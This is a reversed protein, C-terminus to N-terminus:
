QKNKWLYPQNILNAQFCCFKNKNLCSMQLLDQRLIMGWFIRCIEISCIDINQKTDEVHDTPVQFFKPM